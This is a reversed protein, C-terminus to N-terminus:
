GCGDFSRYEETNVYLQGVEQGDQLECEVWCNCGGQGNRNCGSGTVVTRHPSAPDDGALMACIAETQAEWIGEECSCSSSGFREGELFDRIAALHDLWERLSAEPQPRDSSQGSLLLRSIGDEQLTVNEELSGCSLCSYSRAQGSESSPLERQIIVSQSFFRSVGELYRNELSASKLMSRTQNVADTYSALFSASQISEINTPM